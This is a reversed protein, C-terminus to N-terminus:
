TTSNVRQDIGDFAFWQAELIDLDHKAWKARHKRNERDSPAFGKAMMTIRATTCEPVQMTFLEDDVADRSLIRFSIVGLTPSVAHGEFSVDRGPIENAGEANISLSVADQVVLALDVTESITDLELRSAVERVERAPRKWIFVPNDNKAHLHATRVFQM